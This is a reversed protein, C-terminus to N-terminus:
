QRRCGHTMVDFFRRDPLAHLEDFILGHVNFGHKSCSESSLVQYFSNLPKYILKKESIIPKIFKRLERCQDVMDCAVDFVISAQRRDSACSYVEARPERDACTLLLAVAAALESKGQKKSIEIYGTRFQRYGNPKKIGFLDRIIQEQWEILEFQEGAWQGGPHKLCSIFGCAIDAALKDYHSDSLAFRSPNYEFNNM